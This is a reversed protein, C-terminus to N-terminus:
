KHFVAVKVRTSCLVNFNLNQNRVYSLKRLTRDPLKRSVVPCGTGLCQSMLTMGPIAKM